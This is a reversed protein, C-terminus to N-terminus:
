GCIAQCKSGLYQCRFCNQFFTIGCACPTFLLLLTTNLNKVRAAGIQTEESEVLLLTAAATTRAVATGPQQGVVDHKTKLHWNTASHSKGNDGLSCLFEFASTACCHWMYTRRTDRPVPAMVTKFGYAFLIGQLGGAACVPPKILATGASLNKAQENKRAQLQPAEDVDDSGSAEENSAITEAIHNL